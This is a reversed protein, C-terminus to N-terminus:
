VSFFRMKKMQPSYRKKGQHSHEKVGFGKWIRHFLSPRTQKPAPHWRHFEQERHIAHHELAYNSLLQM